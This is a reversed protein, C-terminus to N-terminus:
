GCPGKFEDELEEESLQGGELIVTMSNAIPKHMEELPVECLFFGHQGGGFGAWYPDQPRSFATCM